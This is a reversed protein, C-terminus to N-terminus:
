RTLQVVAKSAAWSMLGGAKGPTDSRQEEDVWDCDKIVNDIDLDSYRIKRWIGRGAPYSISYSEVKTFSALMDALYLLVIQQSMLDRVERTDFVAIAHSGSREITYDAGKL